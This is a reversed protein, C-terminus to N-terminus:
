AYLATFLRNWTAENGPYLHIQPPTSPEIDMLWYRDGATLTLFGQNSVMQGENMEIKIVSGRYDQQQIDHAFQTAMEQDLGHAMLEKAMDDVSRIPADARLKDILDAPFTALVNSVDDQNQPFHFFTFCRHRATEWDRIIELQSVVERHLSHMMLTDGAVYLNLNTEQDDAMRTCRLSFDNQMMAQVAQKFGDDLWKEGTEADFDLLGRAVLAHSAALLRGETEMRPREGLIALLFGIATDTGGLVGLAYALEEVALAYRTSSM